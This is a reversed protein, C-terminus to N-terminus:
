TLANISPSPAGPMRAPATASNAESVETMSAVPPAVDIATDNPPPKAPESDTPTASACFLM